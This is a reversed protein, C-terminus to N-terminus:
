IGTFPDDADARRSSYEAEDAEEDYSPGAIHTIELSPLPPTENYDDDGSEEWTERKRRRRKRKRKRHGRINIKGIGILIWIICMGAAFTLGAAAVPIFMPSGTASGTINTILTVLEEWKTDEEDDADPPKCPCPCSEPDTPDSSAQYEELNSYCDGDPDDSGDYLNM